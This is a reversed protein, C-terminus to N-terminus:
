FFKSCIIRNAKFRRKKPSLEVKLSKKYLLGDRQVVLENLKDVGKCFNGGYFRDGSGFTAVNKNNFSTIDECFCSFEEPFDGNDYSSCGIFLAEYEDLCTIGILDSCDM